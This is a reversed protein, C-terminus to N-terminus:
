KPSVCAFNALYCIHSSNKSENEDRGTLRRRFWKRVLLSRRFAFINACTIVSKATAIASINTTVAYIFRFTHEQKYHLEGTSNGDTAPDCLGSTTGKVERLVTRQCVCDNVPGNPDKTWAVVLGGALASNRYPRRATAWRGDGIVFIGEECLASLTAIEKDNARRKRSSSSPGQTPRAHPQDITPIGVM